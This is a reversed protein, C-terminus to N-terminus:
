WTTNASAGIAILINRGTRNNSATAHLTNISIRRCSLAADAHTLSRAAFRTATRRPTSRIPKIACVRQTCTRAAHATYLLIIINYSSANIPKAASTPAAAAQWCIITRRHANTHLSMCVNFRDAATMKMQARWCRERERAHRRRVNPVFAQVACLRAIADRREHGDIEASRRTGAEAPCGVARRVCIM